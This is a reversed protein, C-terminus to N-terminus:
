SIKVMKETNYDIIVRIYGKLEKDLGPDHTDVRLQGLADIKSNTAVILLSKKGGAKRIVDPSIQQNGRGLVMGMGGLPTLLIKVERDPYNSMADLIKKESADSVIVKKGLMVDVGLLTKKLGLLEFIAKTTTGPGVIFIPETYDKLQKFYREVVEKAIAGQNEQETDTSPSAAKTGQILSPVSPVKLYGILKASLWNSRYAEEDIDMIEGESTKLSKKMIFEAVVEASAEPSFGFVGGYMKVGSPVGLVPLKIGSSLIDVSTGDGGVFVVLSAEKEEFMRCAKVTDGSSTMGEKTGPVPLIELSFSTKKVVRYGMPDRCALILLDATGVKRVLATLFQEARKEAVPTAGRELALLYKEGDTGKLGVTGGMGAVPNLLFGIKKM